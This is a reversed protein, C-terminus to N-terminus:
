CKATITGGHGLSEAFQNLTAQSIVLFQSDVVTASIDTSSCARQRRSECRGDTQSHQIYMLIVQCIQWTLPHQAEATGAVGAELLDVKLLVGKRHASEQFFLFLFLTHWSVHYSPWLYVM